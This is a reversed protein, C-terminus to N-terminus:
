GWLPHWLSFYDKQEGQWASLSGPSGSPDSRTYSEVFPRHRLEVGVDIYRDKLNTIVAPQSDQFPGFREHLGEITGTMERPLVIWAEKLFAYADDLQGFPNWLQPCRSIAVKAGSLIADLTLSTTLSVNRRWPPLLRSCHAQLRGALLPGAHEKYRGVRMALSSRKGQGM